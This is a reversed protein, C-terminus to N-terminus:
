AGRSAACTAVCCCCGGCCYMPCGVMAGALQSMKKLADVGSLVDTM